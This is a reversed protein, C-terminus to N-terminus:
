FVMSAITDAEPSDPTVEEMTISHQEILKDINEIKTAEFPILVNENNTVFLDETRCTGLDAYQWIRLHSWKSRRCKIIHRVLNPTKYFGKSLISKVGELDAITPPLSIEALDVRDILSKAGRLMTEDKISSDKYTGNLQSMTLIFVNLQNALNKLKDMFLFLVQDERVRMGRSASAVEAILSASMHIYDFVFYSVSKERHWRKIRNEIDALSFDPVFDIYLQAAKIYQIAQDVREEEGKEYRGDIIHAENVGSVFAQIMTQIESIELETSIFVSPESNGTYIWKNENTDYFWPVSFGCLDALATRSKGSGSSSSRIYLKKLRAGRAVTTLFPSQLPMGFDPAEKFSEKLIEMGKGALQSNEVVSSEFKLKSEGIIYSDVFEIMEKVTMDDLKQAQEEQKSPEVCTYDYLIRSDVGHVELFRLYTFKKLREYYYDFDELHAMDIADQIYQTGKNITFIKYQKDFGSLLSDVAFVDIINVGRQYLNHIASFIIEYFPEFSFDDKDLTYTELLSPNKMLCGIVQTCSRPDSLENINM